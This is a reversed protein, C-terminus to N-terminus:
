AHQSETPLLIVSRRKPMRLLPKRRLKERKPKQERQPATIKMADYYALRSTVNLYTMANMEIGWFINM